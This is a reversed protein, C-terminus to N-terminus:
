DVEVNDFDKQRERLYRAGGLVVATILGDRLEYQVDPDEPLWVREGITIFDIERDALNFFFERETGDKFHATIICPKDKEDIFVTRGDPTHWEQNTWKTMTM